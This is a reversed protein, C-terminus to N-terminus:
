QESTKVFKYKSLIFFFLVFVVQIAIFFSFFRYYFIGFVPITGLCFLLLLESIDFEERHYYRIVYLCFLAYLIAWIIAGVVGIDIMIAGMHTAFVTIPFGQQASRTEKVETYDKKLVTYSIIPFEREASLLNPDANEYFYCFNLYGQGAYQLVQGGKRQATSVSFVM